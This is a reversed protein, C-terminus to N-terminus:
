ENAAANLLARLMANVAQNFSDAESSTNVLLIAGKGTAPFFYAHTTVGPDGGSHGIMSDGNM